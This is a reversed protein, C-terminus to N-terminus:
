VPSSYIRSVFTGRNSFNPDNEDSIDESLSMRSESRRWSPTTLDRLCPIYETKMHKTVHLWTSCHVANQMMRFSFHQLFIACLSCTYVHQSASKLSVATISLWYWPWRSSCTCENIIMSRQCPYGMRTSESHGATNLPCAWTMCSVGTMCLIGRTYGKKVGM